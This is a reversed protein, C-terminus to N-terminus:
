KDDKKGEREIATQTGNSIFGKRNSYPLVEYMWNVQDEISFNDTYVLPTLLNYKRYDDTVIHMGLEESHEYQYTGPFPTNYSAVAQADYDTVVHKMFNITDRATEQTECFHGFIFSTIPIIGLDHTKKIIREADEIKMGKRIGDLVAQNASEIGYQIALVHSKAMKELLEESMHRLISECEWFFSGNYKDILELFTEVRARLVTFSDDVINIPIRGIENEIQMIELYVNEIDRVRYKKGSLAQASCYICRNPCGRSTSILISKNQRYREYPYYDRPVVPILDLATIFNRTANVIMEGNRKFALGEIDDYRILKEESCIASMLEVIEGEGERIMAFDVYPCQSFETLDLSVHAGGFAIKIDPFAEKVSRATRIAMQINESYVSIGLMKPRLEGVMELFETKKIPDNILDQVKSSFGNMKLIAHLSLLGMSPCFDFNGVMVKNKYTEIPLNILLCDIM